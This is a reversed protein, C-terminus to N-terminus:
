FTDKYNKFMVYDIAAGGLARRSNLYGQLWVFSCFVANFENSATKSM